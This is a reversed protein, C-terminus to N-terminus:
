NSELRKRGDLSCAERSPPAAAGIVGSRDM